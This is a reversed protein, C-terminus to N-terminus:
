WRDKHMQDLVRHTPQIKVEPEGQIGIAQVGPMLRENVFSDFSEPRDWVDIIRLAGDEFWSIHFMGGEPAEDEWRVKDRAENYQEPTVGDWRMEMVVPM